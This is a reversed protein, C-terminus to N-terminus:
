TLLVPLFTQARLLYRESLKLAMHPCLRLMNLGNHVARRAAAHHWDRVRFRIAHSM